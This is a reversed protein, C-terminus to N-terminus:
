FQLTEKGAIKAFNKLYTDMSLNGQKM